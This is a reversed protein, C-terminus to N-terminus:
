RCRAVQVPAATWEAGAAAALGVTAAAGVPAIAAEVERIVGGEIRVTREMVRSALPLDHTAAIVAGGQGVIRRVLDNIREVGEDDLAAYPEDLLLLRPPHLLLRALALRRRMGSSFGRVRLDAHRGLGVERLVEDIGAAATSEGRMRVAFRLNEAATLDEYLGASFGMMGIHERVRAASRRFDHGLVRGEGRTPRLLTAAVRLLTTKGAGNGGILAVAEGPMIRLDCGRLVWRSGFRHAIGDLELAPTEPPDDPDRFRIM